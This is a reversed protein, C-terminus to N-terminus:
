LALFRRPRPTICPFTSLSCLVISHNPTWRHRCIPATSALIQICLGFYVLGVFSIFSMVVCCVKKVPVRDSIKQQSLLPDEPYSRHAGAAPPPPKKPPGRCIKAGRAM